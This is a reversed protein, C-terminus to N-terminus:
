KEQYDALAVYCLLEEETFDNDLEPLYHDNDKIKAFGSFGALENYCHLDGRRLFDIAEEFNSLFSKRWKLVEVDFHGKMLYLSDISVDGIKCIVNTAACGYCNGHKVDGFTGMDIKTVPHRLSEVMALIIERASMSKVKDEFVMNFSM